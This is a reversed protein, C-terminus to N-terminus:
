HCSVKGPKKVFQRRLGKRALIKLSFLFMYKYSINKGGCHCSVPSRFEEELLVLVYRNYMILIMPASTRAVCPALVDDVM